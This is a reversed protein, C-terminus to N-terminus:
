DSRLDQRRHSDINCEHLKTSSDWLKLLDTQLFVDQVTITPAATDEEINTCMDGGVLAYDQKNVM